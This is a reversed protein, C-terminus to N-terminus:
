GGVSDSAVTAVRLQERALDPNDAANRAALFCFAQCRDLSYAINDAVVAARELQGAAALVDVILPPATAVRKGYELCLRAISTVDPPSEERADRNGRRSGSAAPRSRRPRDQPLGRDLGSGECPRLTRPRRGAERLHRVLYSRVYPVAANWDRAGGGDVPVAATLADVMLEELNARQGARGEVLAAAKRRLFRAFEEHYLRCVPM